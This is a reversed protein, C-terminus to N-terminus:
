SQDRPAATRAAVGGDAVIVAGTVYSAEDSALFTAVAAMEEPRGLRQMPIQREFSGRGGPFVGLYAVLPPTEIPGPCIANIRIGRAANEVAATRTLNLVAAKAAAYAGLGPEGGLAAGSAVNVISGGRAAMAAIAARTGYFTGDLTVSHVTRWDADSTQAVAGGLPSAANNVMVDLRSFREIAARVLADVQDSRSVDGPCALARGGQSEIERAVAGAAEARVDNVVVSAGERAFALACARGIGSGAGTVIAVKGELRGAM